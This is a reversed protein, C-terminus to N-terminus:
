LMSRRALLWPPPMDGRKHPPATSADEPLGREAVCVSKRPRLSCNWQSTSLSEMSDSGAIMVEDIM